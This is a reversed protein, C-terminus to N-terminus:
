YLIELNLVLCLEKSELMENRSGSTKEMQWDRYLEIYLDYGLKVSSSVVYSTEVWRRSKNADFLM